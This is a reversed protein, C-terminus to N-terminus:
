VLGTPLLTKYDQESLTTVQIRLFEATNLMTGGSELNVYSYLGKENKGNQISYMIAKMVYKSALQLWEEGRGREQRVKALQTRIWWRVDGSNFISRWPLWPLESVRGRFAHSVYMEVDIGTDFIDNLDRIPRFVKKCVYSRQLVPIAGMVSPDDDMPFIEDIRNECTSNIFEDNYDGSEFDVVTPLYSYIMTDIYRPFLDHLVKKATKLALDLKAQRPKLLLEKISM